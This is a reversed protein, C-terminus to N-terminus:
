VMVMMVGVEGDSNDCPLCPPHGTSGNRCVIPTSPIKHSLWRVPGPTRILFHLTSLNHISILGQGQGEAVRVDGCKVSLAGGNM